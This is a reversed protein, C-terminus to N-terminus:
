TVADELIVVDELILETEKQEDLVQVISCSIVRGEVRKVVRLLPDLQHDDLNIKGLTWAFRSTALHKTYTYRIETDLDIVIPINLSELTPSGIFRISKEGELKCWTISVRHGVPIPYAGVLHIKM